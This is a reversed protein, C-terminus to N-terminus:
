RRRGPGPRHGPATRTRELQGSLRGVEEEHRAAAAAAVRDREHLEARQDDLTQELADSTSAAQERAAATAAMLEEVRATHAAREIDWATRETALRQASRAAEEAARAGLQQAALVDATAEARVRALDAAPLGPDVPGLAAEYGRLDDLVAALRALAPGLVDASM